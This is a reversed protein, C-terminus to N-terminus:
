ILPPNAQDIEAALQPYRTELDGLIAALQTGVNLWATTKGQFEV